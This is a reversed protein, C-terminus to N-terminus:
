QVPFQILGSFNTTSFSAFPITSNFEIVKESFTILMALSNITSTEPAIKAPDQVSEICVIKSTADSIKEDPFQLTIPRFFDKLGEPAAKTM